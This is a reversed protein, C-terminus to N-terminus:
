DVSTKISYYIQKSAHNRTPDPKSGSRKPPCACPGTGVLNDFATASLIRFQTLHTVLKIHTQWTVRFNGRSM